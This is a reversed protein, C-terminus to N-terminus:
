KKPVLDMGCKPCEGPKDSVVEPHMSCTYSAAQPKPSEAPIGLERLEAESAASAVTGEPHKYWGPDDYSEIGERVKLVTFMGGMDIYGFPGDGGMMAISNRPQPVGPLRMHEMGVMGATGMHMYGPVLKRIRQQVDTPVQVGLMNPLGHAMQNMFHHTMHCHLAWDGPEDAVFEVTRTDGVPVLVTSMPQQQEEPLPTAGIATVRFEYGHLHIPHHDQASLNGFRLRVRQGRRVVMPATGPFVKSNITFLNFDNMVTTDPTAGGPEIAWESLILAFDRDVKSANGANRPRPHIVFMGMMGLGIQTMEDTHSHYMHTGHQRLTFEYRFTQGPPIVPQNLGSVGDMGNPLLIGHWHITTPAGPLRNTVYIRVRDGEVAEITPGPTQGNYGWCKV